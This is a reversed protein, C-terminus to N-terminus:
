AGVERAISVIVNSLGAEGALFSALNAAVIAFADRDLRSKMRQHVLFRFFLVEAIPAFTESIALIVSRSTVGLETMLSPIVMVVVPYTFATLLLGNCVKETLRHESSLGACLIPVEIIVTFVYGIALIIMASSLSM